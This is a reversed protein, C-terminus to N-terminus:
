SQVEIFALKDCVSYERTFSFWTEGDLTEMHWRPAGLTTFTKEIAQIAKNLDTYVEVPNWYRDLESQRIHVYFKNM